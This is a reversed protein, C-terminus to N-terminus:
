INISHSTLVKSMNREIATMIGPKIYVIQFQPNKLKELSRKVYRQWGSAGSSLIRSIVDGSTGPDFLLLSSKSNKIEYGPVNIVYLLSTVIGVITRSHGQHQFYLPPVIRQEPNGFSSGDFCEGQFYKQVWPYVLEKGAAVNARNASNFDVICARM